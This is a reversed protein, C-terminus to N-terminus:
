ALSIPAILTLPAFVRRFMSAAWSRLHKEGFCNRAMRCTSSTIRTRGLRVFFPADALRLRACADRQSVHKCCIANGHQQLVGQEQQGGGNRARRGQGGGDRQATHQVQAVGILGARHEHVATELLMSLLDCNHAALRIRRLGCEALRACAGRGQGVQHLEPQVRPLLLGHEKEM